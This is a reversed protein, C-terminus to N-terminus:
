SKVSIYESSPKIPTVEGNTLISLFKDETVLMISIAFRFFSQYDKFNWERIVNDLKTLDGNDFRLELYKNIEKNQSIEKVAM